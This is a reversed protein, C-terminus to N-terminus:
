CAPLVPPCSRLRPEPTARVQRRRLRQPSGRECCPATSPCGSPMAKRDFPHSRGLLLVAAAAM